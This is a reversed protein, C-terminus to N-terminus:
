RFKSGLRKLLDQRVSAATKPATVKSSKAAPKAAIPRFPPILSGSAMHLPVVPQSTRHDATSPKAKKSTGGRPPLQREGGRGRKKRVARPQEDDSSVYEDDDAENEGDSWDDIGGGDGDEDGPAGEDFDHDDARGDTADFAFGTTLKGRDGGGELEGDFYDAANELFKASLKIGRTGFRQRGITEEAVVEVNSSKRPPIVPDKALADSGVDAAAVSVRLNLRPVHKRVPSTPASEKSEATVVADPPTSVANLGRIKDDDGDTVRTSIRLKLKKKANKGESPETEEQHDEADMIEEEEDSSSAASAEGKTTSGPAINRRVKLTLKPQSAVPTPEVQAVEAKANAPPPEVRPMTFPVEPVESKPCAVKDLFPEFQIRYLFKESDTTLRRVVLEDGVVDSLNNRVRCVVETLSSYSVGQQSQFEGAEKRKGEREEEAAREALLEWWEALV